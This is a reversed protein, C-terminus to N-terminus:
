FAVLAERHSHKIKLEDDHSSSNQKGVVELVSVSKLHMDLTEETLIAIQHFRVRPCLM